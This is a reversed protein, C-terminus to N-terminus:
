LDAGKVMALHKKEIYQEDNRTQKRYKNYSKDFRNHCHMVCSHSDQVCVMQGAARYFFDYHDLIHINPDYGVLKVKETKAVFVNPAKYIVERGAIETGAPIILGKKMIMHNYKNMSEKPKVTAQIAVLDVEPYYQLFALEGHVNTQPILLMDDDLRMVYPTKVQELTAILGKSLGSNFPLHIVCDLDLPKKSDDAIIINADPYYSRISRYLRKAQRQRNFSKYIFTM